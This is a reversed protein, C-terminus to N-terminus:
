GSCGRGKKEQEGADGTAATAVTGEIDGGVLSDGIFSLLKEM